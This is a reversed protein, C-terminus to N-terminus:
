SEQWLPFSTPFAQEPVNGHKGAPKNIAPAPKGCNMPHISLEHINEKLQHIGGNSRGPNWVMKPTCDGESFIKDRGDKIM